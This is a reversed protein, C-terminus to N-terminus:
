YFLCVRANITVPNARWYRRWSRFGFGVGRGGLGGDSLNSKGNESSVARRGARICELKVGPCRTRVFEVVEASSVNGAKEWLWLWAQEIAAEIVEERSKARFTSRAAVRSELGAQFAAEVAAIFRENMEFLQSRTWVGCVEDGSALRQLM